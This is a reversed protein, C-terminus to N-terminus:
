VTIFLEWGCTTKFYLQLTGVANHLEVTFHLQITAKRHVAANQYALSPQAM